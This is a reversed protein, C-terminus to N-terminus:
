EMPVENGDLPLTFYFRSGKGYESEAWIQGGHCFIIERCIALGLGTGGAHKQTKSFQKFKQFIKEIDGEHIGKGTDEVCVELVHNEPRVKSSISIRGHGTFKVANDILHNLVLRIKDADISVPLQSDSLRSNLALGKEQASKQYYALVNRVLANFDHAARDLQFEKSELKILDLIDNILCNLRNVNDHIKNLFAKQDDNLKGASEGLVLDITSKVAALATRLEHSAIAAFEKRVYLMKTLKKNVKALEENNKNTLAFLDRNEALLDYYKMSQDIALKLESSRWPKNVFRFIHGINIADQVVQSSTYGTCLVRVIDPHKQRMQSLFEIGPTKPMRQDSMFVKIKGGALINMAEEPDTTTAVGFHADRFERQISKLIDQEDDLVLLQIEKDM